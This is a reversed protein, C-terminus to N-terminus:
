LWKLHVMSAFLFFSFNEHYVEISICRLFFFSWNKKKKSLSIKFRQEHSAPVHFAAGRVEKQWQSRVASPRATQLPCRWRCPLQAKGSMRSCSKKKKRWIRKKVSPSYYLGNDTRIVCCRRKWVCVESGHWPPPSIHFDGDCIGMVTTWRLDCGGHQRVGFGAVADPDGTGIIRSHASISLRFLHTLWFLLGGM